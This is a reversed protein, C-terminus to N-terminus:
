AGIHLRLVVGLLAGILLLISSLMTLAFGLKRKEFGKAYGHWYDYTVALADRDFAPYDGASRAVTFPLRGAPSKTLGEPDM